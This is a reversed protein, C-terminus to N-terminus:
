ATIQYRVHDEKPVTRGVVRPSIRQRYTQPYFEPAGGPTEAVTWPVARPAVRRVAVAAPALYAEAYDVIKTSFFGGILIAVKEATDGIKVFRTLLPLGVALGLSVPMDYQPVVYQIAKDVGKGVWQGGYTLAIEKWAM